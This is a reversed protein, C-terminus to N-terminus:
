NFTRRPALRPDSTAVHDVSPIPHTPRVRPRQVDDNLTKRFLDDAEAQGLGNAVCRDDAYVAWRDSTGDLRM